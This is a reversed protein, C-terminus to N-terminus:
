KRLDMDKSNDEMLGRGLGINELNGEEKGVLEWNLFKNTSSHYYYYYYWYYYYYYYYYFYYYYYYYYYYYQLPRGEDWLSRRGKYTEIGAGYVTLVRGNMRKEM